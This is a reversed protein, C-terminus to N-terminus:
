VQVVAKKSGNPLAQSMGITEWRMLEEQILIDTRRMIEACSPRQHPDQHWCKKILRKLPEPTDPDVWPRDGNVAVKLIIQFFHNSDKWPQRRTYMENVICGLAYVDVKEDVKGGNMQEPSMYMPTGNEATMQTLYSKAPDKVKSIGFDAIKARGEDDLLINQPKMDRHIVFPHLYALGEAIDHILQLIEIYTLRRRNRDHIRQYLNGGRMLEMVLCCKNKDDTCAGFVKVLRQCDFKSALKIERILAEYAAQGNQEEGSSLRVFSPLKKVAVPKGKYKGEYVAGFGGTGLCKGLHKEIVHPPIHLDIGNTEDDGFM